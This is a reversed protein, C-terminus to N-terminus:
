MRNQDVERRYIMTTLEHRIKTKLRKMKGLGSKYNNRDVIDSNFWTRFVCHPYMCPVPDHLLELQSRHVIGNKTETFEKSYRKNSNLSIIKLQYTARDYKEIPEDEKISYLVDPEESITDHCCTGINHSLECLPSMTQYPNQLEEPKCRRYLIDGVRFTHLMRKNGWHLRKPIYNLTCEEM